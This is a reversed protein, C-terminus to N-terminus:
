DSYDSVIQLSFDKILYYLRSSTQYPIIDLKTLLGQLNLHDDVNLVNTVRAVINM